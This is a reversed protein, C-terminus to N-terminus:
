LSLEKPELLFTVYQVLSGFAKRRGSACASILILKMELARTCQRGLGQWNRWLLMGIYKYICVGGGGGNTEFSTFPFSHFCCFYFSTFFLNFLSFVFGIGKTGGTVLATKGQLSWRGVEGRYDVQAM